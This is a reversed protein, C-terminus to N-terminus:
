IPWNSDAVRFSPIYLHSPHLSNSLIWLPFGTEQLLVIIEELSCKLMPEIIRCIYDGKLSFHKRCLFTLFAHVHPGSSVSWIQHCVPLALIQIIGSLCWVILINRSRLGTNKRVITHIQMHFNVFALRMRFFLLVYSSWLTTVCWADFKFKSSHVYICLGIIMRIYSKLNEFRHSIVGHLGSFTLRRKPLFM